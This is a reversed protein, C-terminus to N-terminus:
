GAPRKEEDGYGPVEAETGRMAHLEEIARILRQENAETPEAAFAEEAEKKFGKLGVLRRHLDLVHRLQVRADESGAKEERSAWDLYRADQGVLEDLLKEFGGQTLGYNVDAKNAVRESAAMEMLVGHLARYRATALELHGFEEFFEPLLGPFNLVTQLLTRERQISTGAPDRGLAQHRMVREPADDARRRAAHATYAIRETRETRTTRTTRMQPQAPGEYLRNRYHRQFYFRLDKDPIREIHALLRRNVAARREPTELGGEGGALRWLRSSLPGADVLVDEMAQVGGTGILSDPDEGDPLTAFRLSRDARLRPLAREVARAAAREGAADGDFCLIPEPALRWLEEIQLETLATGLPAVTEAIGAQHLAIVDMYGEVTVVRRAERAAPRALDLGYLVTGKHFLPTDPSNLYKPQTDGLARGGFAIVRGRRDAIPFIIRGRFRDYSQGGGDPEILLGATVMLAESIDQGALASKLGDRREPAFGLRFTQVSEPTLARGVLYARAARGADAKLQHEFWATAAELVGYLSIQARERAREAPSQKPLELGAQDALREVAEPFGFGEDRMVFGIVDGHAGCGFCHFFGKDESVTFSPTKENHFPCLGTLERGRRALRVRKGIVDALPVRARIEDLFQPSFAM